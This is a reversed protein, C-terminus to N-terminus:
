QLYWVQNNSYYFGVLGNDTNYYIGKVYIKTQNYRVAYCEYVNKHERTGLLLSDHFRYGSSSDKKNILIKFSFVSTDTTSLLNLMLRDKSTKVKDSNISTMYEYYDKERRIEYNFPANSTVYNIIEHESNCYDDCTATGCTKLEVRHLIIDNFSNQLRYNMQYSYATGGPASIFSPFRSLADPLWTKSSDSLGTSGYYVGVCYPTGGNECPGTKRCSCTIIFVLYIAFMLYKRM